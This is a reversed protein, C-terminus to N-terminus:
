SALGGILPALHRVEVDKECHGTATHKQDTESPQDVGVGENILTPVKMQWPPRPSHEGRHDANHTPESQDNSHMTRDANCRAAEDKMARARMAEASM